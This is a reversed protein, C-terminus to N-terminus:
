LKCWFKVLELKIGTQFTHINYFRGRLSLDFWEDWDQVLSFTGKIRRVCGRYLDEGCVREIAVYIM